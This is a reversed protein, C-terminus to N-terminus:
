LALRQYSTNHIEVCECSILVNSLPLLQLAQIVQQTLKAKQEDSRGSLLKITIHIFSEKDAGLRYHEFSQGRSRVDVAQFLDSSEIVHQVADILQTVSSPELNKSYEVICHPMVAVRFLCALIGRMIGALLM